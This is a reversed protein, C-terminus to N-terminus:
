ADGWQEHDTCVSVSKSFNMLTHRTIRKVMRDRFSNQSHSRNEDAPIVYGYVGGAKCLGPDLWNYKM